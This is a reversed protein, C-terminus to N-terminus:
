LRCVMACVRTQSHLPVLYDGLNRNWGILYPLQEHIVLRQLERPHLSVSKHVSHGMVTAVIWM